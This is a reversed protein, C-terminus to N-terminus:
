FHADIHLPDRKDDLKVVICPKMPPQAYLKVAYEHYAFMYRDIFTKIDDASMGEGRERAKKEAEERWVYAMELSPPQLVLFADLYELLAEYKRVANDINSGNGRSVFGICWGEVILTDKPYLTRWGTRDGCGEHSYKDYVPVSTVIRKKFADLTELLLGIDHTGPNGRGNWLPEKSTMFLTDIENKPLYFDDISIHAISANKACLSQVLTTKGCGQIGQIGIIM